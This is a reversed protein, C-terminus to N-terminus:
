AEEDELKGVAEGLGYINADQPLVSDIGLYQDEFVLPQEPTCTDFLYSL